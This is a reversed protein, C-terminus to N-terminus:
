LILAQSVTDENALREEDDLPSNKKKKRSNLSNESGPSLQFAVANSLTWRVCTKIDLDGLFEKDAM